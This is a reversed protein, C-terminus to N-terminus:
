GGLETVARQVAARFSRASLAPYRYLQPEIRDFMALLTGANILGRSLMERVDAIDRSHAREIKSLAQAYFDYHHFSLRGERTIFPSRQEWGPLEPIFQSPSALEVNIEFDEKLRPIARLVEDPEPKLELDVDITSARWGILVATAGGTLYVRADSRAERGLAAMFALLRERDVLRRM